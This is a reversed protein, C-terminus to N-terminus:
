APLVHSCYRLDTVTGRGAASVLMSMPVIRRVVIGHLHAHELAGLLDRAMSLVIPIPRPGRAVAEQLAEGDIWNGVRYAVEGVIGVDYVHRIAPHDLRGLAEAERMFWSRIADGVFFNIRISVRRRLAQDYAEFLVREASVAALRELRFRPGLAAGAREFADLPEPGSLPGTRPAARGQDGPRLAGCRM